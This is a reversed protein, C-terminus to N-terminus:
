NENAMLFAHILFQSSCTIISKVGYASLSFEDMKPTCRGRYFWRLSSRTYPPSRDSASQNFLEPNRHQIAWHSVIRGSIPGDTSTCSALHLRPRISWRLQWEHDSPASRHTHRAGPFGYHVPQFLHISYNQTILNLVPHPCAPLMSNVTNLVATNYASKKRAVEM